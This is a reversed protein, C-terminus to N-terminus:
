AATLSVWNTTLTRSESPKELPRTMMAMIPQDYRDDKWAGVKVPFVLQPMTQDGPRCEPKLMVTNSTMSSVITSVSGRYGLRATILSLARVVSSRYKTDLSSALNSGCAAEICRSKPDQDLKLTLSGTNTATSVEVNSEEVHLVEDNVDRGIGGQVQANDPRSTLSPPSSPAPRANIAAVARLSEQFTLRRRRHSRTDIYYNVAIQRIEFRGNSEVQSRRSRDHQSTRSNARM